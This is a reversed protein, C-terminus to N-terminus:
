SKRLLIRIPISIDLKKRLRRRIFKMWDNSIFDPDNVWLTFTPPKQSTQTAYYVKFSGRNFEAVVRNLESTKISPMLSKSIGHIEKLLGKIGMGTLASTFLIYPEDLFPLTNKIYNKYDAMKTDVLDYKNIVIIFPVYKGDIENLIRKEQSVIGDIADTVFLVIDVNEINRKASAVLGAELKTNVKRRIGPTDIILFNSERFIFSDSVADRTTGPAVDVIAREKKLIRNLISSKGVNPRGLIAIKIKEKEDKIEYKVNRIEGIIEDLLTNINIGSIASIPVFPAGLKYFYSLDEQNYPTKDIKNIVVLFKKNKKRLLKLIDLDQPLIGDKGDLLFLVLEAEIIAFDIQKKIKLSLDKEDDSIGGTDILSFSVGDWQAEGYNRDRTTGPTKDTFAKKVGLLRNFLTSKGVNPRGVIAVKFNM